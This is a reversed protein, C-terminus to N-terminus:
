SAVVQGHIPYSQTQIPKQEGPCHPSYTPHKIPSEIGQADVTQRQRCMYLRDTTETQKQKSLAWYVDFPPYTANPALRYLGIYEIYICIYVNIYIDMYM